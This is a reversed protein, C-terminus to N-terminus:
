RAQGQKMEEMSEKFMQMPDFPRPFVLFASTGVPPEMVRIEFNMIGRPPLQMGKEQMDRAKLDQVNVGRRALIEYDKMSYIQKGNLMKAKTLVNGQADYVEAEIYWVPREKDTANEVVGTIVLDGNTDIYGSLNGIQLGEPSVMEQIAGMTKDKAEKMRISSEVEAYAGAGVISVAILLWLTQLGSLGASFSEKKQSMMTRRIVVILISLLLGKVAWVSAGTLIVAISIVAGSGMALAAGQGAGILGTMFVSILVGIVSFVKRDTKSQIMALVIGILIGLGMISAASAAISYWSPMDPSATIIYSSIVGIDMLMVAIVPLACGTGGAVGAVSGSVFPHITEAASQPTPVGLPRSPAQPRSPEKVPVPETVPPTPPELPSPKAPPPEVHTMDPMDFGSLEITPGKSKDADGRPSDQSSFSAFAPEPEPKPPSASPAVAAPHGAEMDSPEFPSVAPAEKSLKYQEFDERTIKVYEGCRTCKFKIGKGTIKEDAVRFLKNCSGCRVEM